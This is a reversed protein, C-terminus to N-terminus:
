SPRQNVYKDYFDLDSFNPNDDKSALLSTVHSYNEPYHHNYNYITNIEKYPISSYSFTIALFQFLCQNFPILYHLKGHLQRTYNDPPSFYDLGFDKTFKCILKVLYSLSPVGHAYSTEQIDCPLYVYSVAPPRVKRSEQEKMRLIYAQSISLLVWPGGVLRM